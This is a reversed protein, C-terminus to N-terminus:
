ENRAKGKFRQIHYQVSQMLFHRSMVSLPVDLKRSLMEIQRREQTTLRIHIAESRREPKRPLSLPNQNDSM